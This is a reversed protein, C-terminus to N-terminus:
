SYLSKNFKWKIEVFVYKDAEWCIISNNFFLLISIITIDNSM